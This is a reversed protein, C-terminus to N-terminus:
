SNDNPRGHCKGGAPSGGVMAVRKGQYAAAQHDVGRPVLRVTSTTPSTPTATRSNSRTLMAPPSLSAASTPITTALALLTSGQGGHATASATFANYVKTYM